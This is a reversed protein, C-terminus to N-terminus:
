ALLDAAVCTSPVLSANEYYTIFHDAFLLGWDETANDVLRIKIERGLFASLDVKYEVMNAAYIGDEALDKPYGMYYYRKNIEKFMQNYTSALVEETSADIFEIHCKEKSKGGGLKYTVYGSGGLTFASSTLTGTNVEVSDGNAGGSWGGLFFSGTKNFLYCENWWTYSSQVKMIPNSSDSFSWGETTGSEFTGNAVQYISSESEQYALTNPSLLASSDVADLTEYYTIFSDVCVLGWNNSAQDMVQIKVERGILSTLDAKYLIMDMLHSGVNILETGLDHFMFNTFRLLEEETSADIISIYCSLPNRGGSMRFTMYGVGGVTFASSTLSGTGAEDEEGSFFYTGRKNFTLNPNNWWYSKSSIRGIKQSDMSWSKEWGTLDGTEFTGNPVQYESDPEREYTSSIDICYYEKDEWYPTSTYYTEFSDFTMCGLDDSSPNNDVIEFYLTEGVFESLDVYYQVMNLLHMKMPIFPFQENKYQVNSVKAVEVPEGNKVSMFRIYTLDQRMCGGLKFSVYGKGGLKFTSSRLVGVGSPNYHGYHYNGDRSYTINENWWTSENNVGDHSFADGSVINWGGLSGIEFGPNKIHYEDIAEVDTIYDRTKVFYQGEEQEEADYGIRIDDVSLYGYYVDRDNDVIRMYCEQYAYESLDITYECFNDTHYVGLEYKAVDVYSETHEIFYENTQRAIMQDTEALYIAVYCVEEINKYVADTGKGKTLAGGALKLSVYGEEDLHFNSSRLAGVRGHSYSLDFGQGSLYWNGTKNNDILNHKDDYKFYFNERSSVSDDTYADGYEITWGSLDASEFGGNQVYHKRIITEKEKNAGCGVLSIVFPLVLLPRLYKKNM